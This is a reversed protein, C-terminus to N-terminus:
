KEASYSRYLYANAEQYNKEPTYDSEYKTRANKELKEKLVKDSNLKNIKIALDDPNGAEYLLGTRSDDVLEAHSGLNSCIVPVGMAYAEIITLGFTEYWESSFIMGECNQLFSFVENYEIKGVWQINRKHAYRQMLMCKLPGEGVILLTYESDIKDWAKLVTEIGKIKIIRGIFLFNKRNTKDKSQAQEPDFLFHPKTVIKHSPLGGEILKKKLM